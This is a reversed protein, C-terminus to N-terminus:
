AAGQTGLLLDDLSLGLEAALARAEAIHWRTRGRMRDSVAQRSIDLVRAVAAHTLGEDRIRQAIPDASSM